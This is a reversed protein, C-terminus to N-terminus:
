ESLNLMLNINSEIKSVSEIGRSIVFVEMTEKVVLYLVPTMKRPNLGDLKNDEVIGKIGEFDEGNETAAVVEFSYKEALSKVIPVFARAFKCNENAQLVLFSKTAIKTFNKRNREEELNSSVDDALPGHSNNVLSGLQLSAKVWGDAFEQSKKMILAQLLQAQVINSFNPTDMAKHMAKEFEQKLNLNRAEAPSVAKLKNKKENKKEKPEIITKEHWFNWGQHMDNFNGSALVYEINLLSIILCKILCKIIKIM